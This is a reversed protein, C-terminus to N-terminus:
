AGGSDRNLLAAITLADNRHGCVCVTAQPAKERDKVSCGVVYYRAPDLLSLAGELTSLAHKANGDDTHSSYRLDAMANKIQQVAERRTADDISTM